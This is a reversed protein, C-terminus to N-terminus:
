SGGTLLILFVDLIFFLGNFTVIVNNWIFFLGLASSDEWFSQALSDQDWSDLPGIKLTSLQASYSLSTLKMTM